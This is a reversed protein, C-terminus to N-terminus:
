VLFLLVLSYMGSGISMGFRMTVTEPEWTWTSVACIRRSGCRDSALPSVGISFGGVGGGLSDERLAASEYGLAAPDPDEAAPM